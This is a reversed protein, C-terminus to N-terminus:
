RSGGTVVSIVLVRGCCRVFDGFLGCVIPLSEEKRRQMAERRMIWIAQQARM